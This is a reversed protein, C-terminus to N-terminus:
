CIRGVKLNDTLTRARVIVLYDDDNEDFETKWEVNDLTKLQALCVKYLEGEIMHQHKVLERGELEKPIRGRQNLTVEM